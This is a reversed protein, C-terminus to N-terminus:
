QQCRSLSLRMSAVAALELASEARLWQALVPARTHRGNDRAVALQALQYYKLADDPQGSEAAIRGGGYLAFAIWYHDNCSGALSMARGFHARASDDLREDFAAWGAVTHLTALASELRARVPDTASVSLLRESRQAIVGVTYAGGGWGQAWERM